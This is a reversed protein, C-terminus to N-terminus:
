HFLNILSMLWLFVPAAFLLGDIRDLVGGHGPMVWGSDKVRVSRKFLSEVLDGVQGVFGCVVCVCVFIIIHLETHWIYYCVIGAVASGCLGGLCGEWTKQPSIYSVVQHKGWFKGFIYAFTDGTFIVACLTFFWEIGSSIIMTICFPFYGLYIVGFILAFISHLVIPAKQLSNFILRIISASWLCVVLLEKFFIYSSNNLVLKHLYLQCLLTFCILIFYDRHKKQFLVLDAYEWTAILIILTIFVILGETAFFFYSSIFLTLGIIASFIRLILNM